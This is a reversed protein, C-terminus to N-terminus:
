YENFYDADPRKGEIWEMLGYSFYDESIVDEIKSKVERM